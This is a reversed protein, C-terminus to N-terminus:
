CETITLLQNDGSGQKEAVTKPLCYVHNNYRLGIKFFQIVDNTQVNGPDEDSKQIFRQTRCDETQLDYFKNPIPLNSLAVGRALVGSACIKQECALIEVAAPDKIYGNDADFM